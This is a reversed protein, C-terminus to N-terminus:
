WFEGASFTHGEPDEFDIGSRGYEAVHSRSSKKAEVMAEFEHLTLTDGYENVIRGTALREKWEAWSRPLGEDTHFLFRWGFSSKGIHAPPNQHGCKECAKTEETHHYYNTGM